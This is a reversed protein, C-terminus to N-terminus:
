RAREEREEDTYHGKLSLIIINKGEVRYVMRDEHDIRRSWWGDLDGHLEEPKGIGHDPDKEVAKILADIKEVKKQDTRAWKKYERGAREEYVINM